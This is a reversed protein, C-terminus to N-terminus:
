WDANGVRDLTITHTLQLFKYFKYFKVTDNHKITNTALTHRGATHRLVLSWHSQIPFTELTVSSKLRYIENEAFQLKGFM